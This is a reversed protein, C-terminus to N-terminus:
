KNTGTKITIKKRSIILFIFFVLAYILVSRYGWAPGILRNILGIQFQMVANITSGIAIVASTMVPTNKGFHVICIAMITPWLPGIFFGIVPLIYIGKAGISFSIALFIFILVSLGILFKFYGIMEIFGSCVIRSVTFLIFFASIFAAGSTRPDMGYNDQFYLTGWNASSMEIILILGLIISLLWVSPTRLADLFGPKKNVSAPQDILPQTSDSPKLDETDNNVHKYEPIKLFIVPILLCLSLPVSFLYLFRWNFGTNNTLFLGATIPGIFAGIGYFAQVINMLMGTKTVFVRSALAIAGVQILGFGGFILVFAAITTIYNPMLYVSLLGTSLFISGLIFASKVGFRSLVIGGLTCFIVYSFSLSFMMLGHQEYSASFDAKILPYTVGKYNETLGFILMSSFLLIFPLVRWNKKM